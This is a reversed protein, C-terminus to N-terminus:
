VQLPSPSHCLSMLEVYIGRLELIVFRSLVWAVTPHGLNIGSLDVTQAAADPSLTTLFAETAKFVHQVYRRIPALDMTTYHGPGSGIGSTEFLPPVSRLLTQIAIDEVVAAHVYLAVPRSGTPRSAPNSTRLWDDLCGDLEHHIQRVKINLLAVSQTRDRKQSQKFTMHSEGRCMGQPDVFM